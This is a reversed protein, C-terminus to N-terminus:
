DITAKIRNELMKSVDSEREWIITNKQAIDFHLRIRKKCLQIVPKGLGMAYGEEFYAGNNKHTLDVVVFKSDKIHKLIEPTIFGNYPVEDIFIARYGAAVIGQRIAERLQLTKEGFEMAIFADRGHSADKQLNDIRIYGEPKLAINIGSEKRALGEVYGSKGLYELIYDVEFCCDNEDRWQLGDASQSISFNRPEKRDVFFLGFMEQKNIHVPQGIHKSLSHIHLLILNIRDSFSKPYWSSIIAEDIHVPHGNRTDGNEFSKRYSDCWEKSRTTHYRFETFAMGNTFRNYYLFPALHNNDLIHAENSTIEYRGCVPCEYFASNDQYDPFFSAEQFKCVPCEKLESM